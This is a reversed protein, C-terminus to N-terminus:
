PVFHFVLHRNIIVFIDTEMPQLQTRLYQKTASKFGNFTCKQKVDWPLYNWDKIASYYFSTAAVGSPVLFNETSRPHDLFYHSCM